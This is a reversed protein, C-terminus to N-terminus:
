LFDGHKEGCGVIEEIVAKNQKSAEGSAKTMGQTEQAHRLDGVRIEAKEIIQRAQM